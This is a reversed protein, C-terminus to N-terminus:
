GFSGCTIIRQNMFVKINYTGVQPNFYVDCRRNQNVDRFNGEGNSYFEPNLKFFNYEREPDGHKRSYVYYVFKKEEGKLLIPYGGRLLNDLYSQKFYADLTKNATSTEIEGLIVSLVDKSEQKKTDTYDSHIMRHVNKELVELSEVHGIVTHIRLKHGYHLTTKIPTFACPVKNVTIQKLSEINTFDIQDFCSPYNLSTNEGFIIKPDVIPRIRRADDTYSLYFHGKTTSSVEAEDGVSARVTFFPINNELNYVEMWSKMLNSMEKFSSNTIGYPIVTALGDLLEIDMDANLCEVTVQRVLAGINENPLGFYCVSYRLGLDMNTEELLFNSNGIVMRRVISDTPEVAAFPEYVKGKNIKIFSRFGYTSVYQYSTNAPFFEMIPSNKDEIGFSTIGQGRNAYFAWIPIGKLGAIGPLFSSFPKKQDFHDIVFEHDKNLSYDM